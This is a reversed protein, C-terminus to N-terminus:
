DCLLNISHSSNYMENVKEIINKVDDDNPHYVIPSLGAINPSSGAINPSSGALNPSSEASKVPPLASPTLPRSPPQYRERDASTCSSKQNAGSSVDRSSGYRQNTRENARREPTSPTEIAYLRDVSGTRDSAWLRDVDPSVMAEGTSSPRELYRKPTSPRSTPPKSQRNYPASYPSHTSAGTTSIYEGYPRGASSSPRSSHRETSYRGTSTAPRNDNCDRLSLRSGSLSSAMDTTAPRRPSHTRGDSSDIDGIREWDDLFEMSGGVSSNRSHARSMQGIRLDTTSKKFRLDTTSSGKRLDDTSNGKRLDNTSAYRSPERRGRKVSSRNKAGYKSSEM